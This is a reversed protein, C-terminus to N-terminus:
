KKRKMHSGGDSATQKEGRQYEHYITAGRTKMSENTKM